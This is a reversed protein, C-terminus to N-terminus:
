DIVKGETPVLCVGFESSALPLTAEACDGNSKHIPWGSRVPQPTGQSAPLVRLGTAILVGQESGILFTYGTSSCERTRVQLSSAIALHSSSSFPLISRRGHGRTRKSPKTGM